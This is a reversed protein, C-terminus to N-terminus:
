YANEGFLQVDMRELRKNHEDASELVKLLQKAHAQPIMGKDVKQDLLTELEALSADEPIEDDHGLEKLAARIRTRPDDAAMQEQTYELGDEFPSEPQEEGKSM